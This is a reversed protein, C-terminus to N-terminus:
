IDVRKHTTAVAITHPRRQSVPNKSRHKQPTKVRYYCVVALPVSGRGQEGRHVSRFFRSNAAVGLAVSVPLEDREEVLDLLFHRGIPRDVGDLIVIGRVLAM